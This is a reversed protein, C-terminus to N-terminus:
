KSDVICMHGKSDMYQFQFPQLQQNVQAALKPNHGSMQAYRIVNRVDRAKSLFRHSANEAIWVAARGSDTPKQVFYWGGVDMAGAMAIHTTMYKDLGLLKSLVVTDDCVVIAKHGKAGAKYRDRMVAAAVQAVKEADDDLDGFQPWILYGSPKEGALEAFTKEVPWRGVRRYGLRKGERETVPDKPKPVIVYAPLDPTATYELLKFALSTKGAEQTPGGFLVHQGAHYDFYDRAFGERGITVPTYETRTLTVAPSHGEAQEPSGRSWTIRLDSNGPPGM